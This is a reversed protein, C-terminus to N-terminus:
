DLDNSPTRWPRKDRRGKRETIIANGWKNGNGNNTKSHKGEQEEKREKKRRLKEVFEYDVTLTINHVVNDIDRGDTNADQTRRGRTSNSTSTTNTNLNSRPVCHSDDLALALPWFAATRAGHCRRIRPRNEAM